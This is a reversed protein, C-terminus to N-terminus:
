AVERLRQAEIVALLEGLQQALTQLDAVVAANAESNALAEALSLREAKSLTNLANLAMKVTAHLQHPDVLQPEDVKAAPQPKKTQRTKLRKVMAAVAATLPRDLGDEPDDGQQWAVIQELAQVQLDPDAQLEQTIPRVVRESLGQQRILTQAEDSLKLVSTVYRRYRDSIGLAEEVQRWSVPSSGHNRGEVTTGPDQESLERRLAKFGQAKEVADIDERLLNEIIQHARVSVGESAITAKIRDPESTEVGEQITRGEVMLLVHAWYRREGTIILYKIGEPVVMNAPARRVSIPNILGHKEISDALRQLAQVNHKLAATTDPAAAQRQWEQVAAAPTMQGASVAQALEEPLLQRPQGPDPFVAAVPLTALAGAKERVQDQAEESMFAVVTSLSSKPKAV